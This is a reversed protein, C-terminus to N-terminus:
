KRHHETVREPGSPYGSDAAVISNRGANSAKAGPTARRDPSLREHTSHGGSAASGSAKAGSKALPKANSTHTSGTGAAKSGAASKASRFGSM